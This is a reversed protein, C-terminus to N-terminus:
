GSSFIDDLWSRPLDYKTIIAAIKAKLSSLRVVYRQLQEVQAAALVSIDDAARNDDVDICLLLDTYAKFVEMDTVDEDAEHDVFVDTYGKLRDESSPTIEVEAPFISAGDVFAGTDPRGTSGHHRSGAAQLGALQRKLERRRHLLKRVKAGIQSIALQINQERTSAM